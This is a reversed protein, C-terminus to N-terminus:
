QLLTRLEDRRAEFAAREDDEIPDGAPLKVELPNVKTGNQVIEYHVHPGTSYGTSGVYGIVQGQKVFSGIGLGKVFKSLHAYNTSFTSNHKISVLNGYGVTNWGYYTITGDATAMIPTGLPAAYDIARHPQNMGLIPHFRATTYGSTIRSYSVPAKLFQRILSAGNEDYYGDKGESSTYLYAEHKEDVNTFTATLIRGTGADVGDRSRKEFAVEFSDGARVQTAFDLSWAFTDALEIIASEPMGAELGANYLSSTIEGRTTVIEVDYHIEEERAIWADATKEVVIAKEANPEYTLIHPAGELTLELSFTKGIRVNTFDYVDKASEVIDLAEAYGIGLAEMAKTFTDGEAIEHRYVEPQPQTPVTATAEQAIGPSADHSKPLLFVAGIAAPVAIGLIVWRTRMAM